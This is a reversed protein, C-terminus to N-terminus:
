GVIGFSTNQKEVDHIINEQHYIWLDTHFVNVCLCVLLCLHVPLLTYEGANPLIGM